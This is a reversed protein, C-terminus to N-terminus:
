NPQTASESSISIGSTKVKIGPPEPITAGSIIAAMRRAEEVTFNGSIQGSGGSIESRIFPASVVKGAVIIALRRGINERTIKAFQKTGEPTLSFNVSPFDPQGPRSSMEVSASKIASQDLLVKKQMHLNETFVMGSGTNTTSSIMTETDPTAEDQILRLQLVPAGEGTVASEAQKEPALLAATAAVTERTGAALLGLLVSGAVLAALMARWTLRLSPRYGPVLVRQVRDSLSSPERENGFAPAAAPSPNLMTEAVSVLTRAYDAPAGSLEIALADCCAERERRIQHSLWWVAPNFFLLAEAFLQFLNALYDGRRIHALEHLLVFRIQEPTLTTILSLPLILTPVLVGVVAPSTLQDTVAVRVQRTLKVARRAEAVLGAIRPDNLTQCSRRLQEAGAVKVSARGLMASAGLLWALALWATWQMTQKGPTWNATVVIKEVPGVAPPQEIKTAIPLAIDAAPNKPVNLVGWTVVSALLTAVLAALTLRYRVEPNTVRRLLLALGAAILAGQWLSHLLAKVVQAWEPSTFWHLLANM